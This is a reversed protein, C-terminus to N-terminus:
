QGGWDCDIATPKIHHDMTVVCRTTADIEIIKYSARMSIRRTAGDAYDEQLREGITKGGEPACGSVLIVFLLAIIGKYLRM